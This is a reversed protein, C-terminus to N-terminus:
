SSLSIASWPYFKSTYGYNDTAKTSMEGWGYLNNDTRIAYYNEYGASIDRYFIGSVFSWSMAKSQDDQNVM